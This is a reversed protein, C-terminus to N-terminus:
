RWVYISASAVSSYVGKTEEFAAKFRSTPVFLVDEAELVMPAAKGNRFKHYESPIESISGDPLKRLIRIGGLAAEQSTGMALALAQAVNLNGTEQMLYGGPRNVAGLVYVVGARKVLVTDGPNITLNLAAPDNVDRGYHVTETVQEPQNARHIVIENGALQTQGGSMALVEMLKRPSLVPYRGPSSVEGIVVINQASFQDINVSVHASKLIEESALKASITRAAEALTQSELNIAGALPMSIQGHDDLRYAGDLDTEEFVHVDVMSGPVLKMNAVGEPAIGPSGSGTARIASGQGQGQTAQQMQQVLGPTMQAQLLVTTGFLFFLIWTLNCVRLAISPVLKPNIIKAM